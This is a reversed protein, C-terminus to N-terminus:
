RFAQRRPQNCEERLLQFLSDLVLLFVIRLLYRRFIDYEYKSVIMNMVQTCALGNTFLDAVQQHINGNNLRDVFIILNLLLIESHNQHYTRWIRYVM